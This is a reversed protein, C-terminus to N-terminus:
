EPRNEEIQTLDNRTMEAKIIPPSSKFKRDELIALGIEGGSCKRSIYASAGGSLCQIMFALCIAQKGQGKVATAV